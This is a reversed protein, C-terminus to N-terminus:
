STDQCIKRSFYQRVISVLERRGAERSELFEAHVVERRDIKISPLQQLHAEFVVSEDTKYEERSVFRDCFRLDDHGLRLGVEEHLERLAADKDCEGRKVGGAPFTQKAKYSNRILLVQPGCWVAVYVGKTEPRFVFWYCLAARYAIRLAVRWLFDM